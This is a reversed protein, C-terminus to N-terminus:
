ALAAAASVDAVAAAAAVAALWTQADTNLIHNSLPTTLPTMCAHGSSTYTPVPTVCTHGSTPLDLHPCVLQVHVVAAM